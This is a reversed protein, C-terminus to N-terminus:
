VGEEEVYLIDSYITHGLAAADNAPDTMSHYMNMLASEPVKARGERKANRALCTELSVKFFIPIVDTNELNLSNLLKLRSVGNLHTADAIVNKIEARHFANIINEVFTTFVLDEKQFYEEDEKIISYRVEDRSIYAWSSDKMLYNKAIWTKGSGPAGVMIFLTKDM